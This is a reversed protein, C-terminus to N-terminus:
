GEGARPDHVNWGDMASGDKGCSKPRRVDSRHRAVTLTRPEDAVLTTVSWQNSGTRETDVVRVADLDWCQTAQRIALEAVQEAPERSSRGRLGDPCLQGARAARIIAQGREPDVGAHSYGHPLQLTTPAFRHGGLHNTEWVVDGFEDHLAHATPRGFLACCADRKGNVCVLMVPEPHTSLVPVSRRVAEFDGDRLASLDLDLLTGPDDLVGTLLLESGAAASAVFVRRRTALRDTSGAPHRLLALRGGARKMRKELEAGLGPDLRSQTPAKAGWPGPQELAVWIRAEAASGIPQEDLVRRWTSCRM